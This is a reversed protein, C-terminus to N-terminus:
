MCTLVTCYDTGLIPMGPPATHRTAGSRKHKFYCEGDTAAITWESPDLGKASRPINIANKKAAPRQHGPIVHPVLTNHLQRHSLAACLVHLLIYEYCFHDRLAQAGSSSVSVISRRSTKKASSDSQQRRRPPVRRKTPAGRLQAAPSVPGANASHNTRERKLDLQGHKQKQKQQINDSSDSFRDIHLHRSDSALNHLKHCCFDAHWSQRLIIHYLPIM